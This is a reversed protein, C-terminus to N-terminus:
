DVSGDRSVAQSLGQGVSASRTSLQRDDPRIAAPSGCTLGPPPVGVAVGIVTDALRLILQEWADHPSIAAVVMIVATTIAATVADGPRGALTVVLASV